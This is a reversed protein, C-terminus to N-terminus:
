YVIRVVRFVSIFSVDRDWLYKRFIFWSKRPLLFLRGVASIMWFNVKVSSLKHTNSQIVLRFVGEDTKQICCVPFVVRKFLARSRLAACNGPLRRRESGRHFPIRILWNKQHPYGWSHKPIKITIFTFNSLSEELKGFYM